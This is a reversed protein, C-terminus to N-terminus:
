LTSKGSVLKFVAETHARDPVENDWYPTILKSFTNFDVHDELGVKALVNEVEMDSLNHEMLAERVEERNISRDRDRDVKKFTADLKQRKVGLKHM